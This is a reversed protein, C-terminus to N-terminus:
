TGLIRKTPLSESWKETAKVCMECACVKERKSKEEGQGSNQGQSSSKCLVSVTSNSWKYFSRDRENVKVDAHMLLLPQKVGGSAAALWPLPCVFLPLEYQGTNLYVAQSCVPNNIYPFLSIILDECWSKLKRQSQGWQFVVNTMWVNFCDVNYFTFFCSKQHEILSMKKSMSGLWWSFNARNGSLMSVSSGTGDLRLSLQRTFKYFVSERCFCVCFLIFSLLVM